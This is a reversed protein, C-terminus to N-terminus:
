RFCQGYGRVTKLVEVVDRGVLRDSRDVCYLM